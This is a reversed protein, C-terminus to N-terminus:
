GGLFAIADRGERIPSREEVQRLYSYEPRVPDDNRGWNWASGDAWLISGAERFRGDEFLLKSGVVGAEPFAEFTDLLWKLWGPRVICDNSLFVLIRGRAM